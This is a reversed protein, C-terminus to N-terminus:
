EEVETFDSLEMINLQYQYVGSTNHKYWRRRVPFGEEEAEIALMQEKTFQEIKMKMKESTDGEYIYHIYV